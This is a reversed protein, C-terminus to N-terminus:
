PALCSVLKFISSPERGCEWKKGCLYLRSRAFADRSAVFICTTLEFFSCTVCSFSCDFACRIALFSRCAM